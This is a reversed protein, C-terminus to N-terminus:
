EAWRPTGPHPPEGGPQGGDLDGEVRRTGRGVFGEGRRRGGILETVDVM